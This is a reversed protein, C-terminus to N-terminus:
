KSFFHKSNQRFQVIEQIGIMINVIGLGIVAGKLYSNAMIPQLNPYRYLLYNNEWIGQWPIFLLFAGVELSYLIYLLRWLWTMGRPAPARGAQLAPRQVRATM